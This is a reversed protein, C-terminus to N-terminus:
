PLGGIKVAELRDAGQVTVLVVRGGPELAFQRPVPGVPLYGLLAPKGGLARATSVVALNSHAGALHNLNSDAVLIRTGHDILTEGLPREGVMVRAILAHSPDTRLELASFGLLADSQRATVWVVKGNGSVLVRASGCGARVTRVVSGAPDTEARSLNLVALEGALSVVYLWTGDTRMGVPQAALAVYGVFDSSGFGRTLAAALNFVAMEASNQLTVFVFRGDPSILVEVAGSGNPSTLLGAVPDPLGNEAAAVSIVAAGSGAAAIAFRGDPTIAIGKSAGHVGITRLVAPALGASNRLVTVSNGTTAFSYGGSATVAIGFPGGALATIATSVSTLSAAKATATTCGPLTPAATTPPSESSGGAHGGGALLLGTAAVVLVAACVGALPAPSRWWPRGVSGPQAAPRTADAPSGKEPQRAAAPGDARGEPGRGTARDTLGAQTLAPAGSAQTEARPWGYGQQGPQGAPSGPVPVAVETIPHGAPRADARGAGAGAGAGLAFGLAAAFERCSAYRDGPAKAMGRALVEDVAAPLDPRRTRVLPPPESLHAYMVSVGQQHRFPPEGCLMEFASCALSYEDSRGDLPRGEIQEPAAYDLTGLFQGTPTLGTAALAGKSLGFDSLYVHDSRDAVAGSSELLMNAPKVDRHVLGRAHAADLASAAQVVIETVRPAPLPGSREILSRVDGGRVYRMALFLVGDSEGAEFVPIIHPDDVAAAARSEQVFRQRFTEDVALGPALIKLAVYRGLRGDYARFVAAMGGEGIREELRYGAILSGTRFREPVQDSM